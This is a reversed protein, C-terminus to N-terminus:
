WTLLTLSDGRIGILHGDAMKFQEYAAMTDPWLTGEKGPVLAIAQSGDVGVAGALWVGSPLAIFEYRPDQEYSVLNIEGTAMDITGMQLTPYPIQVIPPGTEDRPDEDVLMTVWRDTNRWLEKGTAPDLAVVSTGQGESLFLLNDGWVRLTGPELTTTWLERGDLSIATAVGEQTLGVLTQGVWASRYFAGVTSGDSIRLSLYCAYEYPAAQGDSCFDAVGDHERVWFWERTDDITVSWEKQAGAEFSAARSLVIEGETSYDMEYLAGSPAVNFYHDSPVMVRTVLRGDVADYVLLRSGGSEEWVGLRGDPLKPGPAFYQVGPADATLAASWMEEGTEWDLLRMTSDQQNPSPLVVLGEPIGMINGNTGPQSVTWAAVPEVTPDITPSASVSPEEPAASPPSTEDSNQCSTAMLTAALLGVAVWRARRGRRSLVGAPVEDVKSM